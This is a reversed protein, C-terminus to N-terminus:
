PCAVNVNANDACANQGLNTALGAPPLAVTGGTNSTILNERYAANGSLRLGFGGNDRITNGVVLGGAVVLGDGGNSYATNGSVNSGISASIGHSVNGVVLNDRVTSGDAAAIGIGSNGTAVNESILGFPDGFIGPGGNLSTTNGVASCSPGLRIGFAANATALVDRVVCEAGQFGDVGGDANGSVRLERVIAGRAELYVGDAGMGTISGNRVLARDRFVVIGSGSGSAPTCVPPVGGSCTVVGRISFGGLDLSVDPAWIQIGPTNENPLTLDSSLRFSRGASDSLTVPFGATDGEFCGTRTACTQNIEIVGPAARASASALAVLSAMGVCTLRWRDSRLRGM